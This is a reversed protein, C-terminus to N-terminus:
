WMHTDHSRTVYCCSYNRPPLILVTLIAV